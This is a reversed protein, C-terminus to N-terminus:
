FFGGRDCHFRGQLRGDGVPLHLVVAILVDKVGQNWLANMVSLRIKAGENDAFSLGLMELVSVKAGVGFPSRVCKSLSRLFRDRRFM